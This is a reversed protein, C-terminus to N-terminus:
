SAKAARMSRREISRRPPSTSNCIADPFPVRKGDTVEAVSTSHDNSWYPFNVFVPGSANSVGIGTVQQEPFSAVEELRGAAAEIVVLLSLPLLLYFANMM